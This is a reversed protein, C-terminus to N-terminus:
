VELNTKSTRWFKRLAPLKHFPHWHLRGEALYIGGFVLVCGVLYFVDPVEGLLPWAIMIAIVPDLYAFIAVDSADIKLLAYNILTYAGISVFFIGFLVAFWGKLTVAEITWTPIEKLVFPIFFLSGVVMVIVSVQIVNVKEKLEKIFLSYLVGCITAIFFLINGVAQEHHIVTGNLILPAAVVTVVGFLAIMMGTFKRRSFREKLFVLAIMYIIVPGSSSILPAIISETKQLAIFFLSIHFGIGFLGALVLLSWDRKSLPKWSRLVFPAMILSAGAFRIFALIFPPIETLGVKMIAPTVGMILNALIIALFPNM